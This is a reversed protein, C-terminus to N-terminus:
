SDKMVPLTSGGVASKQCFFGSYTEENKQPQYVSGRGFITLSRQFRDAYKAVGREHLITM